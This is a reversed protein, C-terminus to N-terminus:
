PHNWENWYPPHFSLDIKQCISTDKEQSFATFRGFEISKSGEWLLLEHFNSLIHMNKSFFHCGESILFSNKELKFSEMTGSKQNECHVTNEFATVCPFFPKRSIKEKTFYVHMFNLPLTWDRTNEFDILLAFAWLGVKHDEVYVNLQMKSLINLNLLKESFYM